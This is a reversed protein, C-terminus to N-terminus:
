RLYAYLPHCNDGNIEIKQTMPFTVGYKTRAFDHIEQETGPEQSAFQNCPAGIIQLGNSEENKYM